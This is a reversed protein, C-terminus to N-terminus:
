RRTGFVQTWLVGYPGGTVHGVGIEALEADLINRRHGPSDMWGTVVEAATRQGAAINEAVKRYPYGVARARDWVQGGDPNQHDFFGRRLMDVTHLQAAAGLRADVTFPRLGHRRREANTASVM